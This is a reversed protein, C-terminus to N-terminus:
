VVASKNFGAAPCTGIYAIQKYSYAELLLSRFHLHSAKLERVTSAGAFRQRQSKTPTRSKISHPTKAFRPGRHASPAEAEPTKCERHFVRRCSDQCAAHNKRKELEKSSKASTVLDVRLTLGRFRRQHPTDGNLGARLCWLNRQVAQLGASDPSMSCSLAPFRPQDASKNFRKFGCKLDSLEEPTRKSIAVRVLWMVTSKEIASMHLVM